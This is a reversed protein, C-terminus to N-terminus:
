YIFNTHNLLTNRSLYLKFLNPVITNICKRVENALHAIQRVAFWSNVPEIRLVEMKFIQGLYFEPISDM